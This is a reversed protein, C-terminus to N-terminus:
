WPSRIPREWLTAAITPPRNRLLLLFDKSGQDVTRQSSSSPASPKREWFLAAKKRVVAKDFHKFPKLCCFEYLLSLVATGISLQVHMYLHIMDGHNRTNSAQDVVKYAVPTDSNRFALWSTQSSEYHQKKHLSGVHKCNLAVDM